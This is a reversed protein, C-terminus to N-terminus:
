ENGDGLGAHLRTHRDRDREFKRYDIKFTVVESRLMVIDLRYELRSLDDLTPQEQGNRFRQFVTGIQKLDAMVSRLELEFEDDM